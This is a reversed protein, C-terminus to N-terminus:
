SYIAGSDDIYSIKIGVAKLLALGKECRYISSYVVEKIGTQIILKACDVCPSLTIFIVSDKLSLGCKTAKLIANTEAHLVLPDTSGDPLECANKLGSPMGNYGVLCVGEQTVVCAGVLKRTCHSEQAVRLAMDMYMPYHKVLLM